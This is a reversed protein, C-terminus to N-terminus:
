KYSHIFFKHGGWSYSGGDSYNICFQEIAEAWAKREGFDPSAKNCNYDDFYIICGESIIRNEFLYTLVESASKYLDCDVHVMAFKTGAPILSLSDNFWGKYIHISEERLYRGAIERLKNTSIGQFAGESWTGSRIEPSEIDETATIAPLGIFSDFLHINKITGYDRMAQCIYRCSIGYQTGFEAIDGEVNIGIVYRVGLSLEEQIRRLEFEIRRMKRRAHLYTNRILKEKTRRLNRLNRLILAVKKLFLTPLKSIRSDPLVKWSFKETLLGVFIEKYVGFTPFFKSHLIRM